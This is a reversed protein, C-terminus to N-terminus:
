RHRAVYAQNQYVADCITSLLCNLTIIKLLTRVVLCLLYVQARRIYSIPEKAHDPSALRHPPTQYSQVRHYVANCLQKFWPSTALLRTVVDKSDSGKSTCKMVEVEACKRLHYGIMSSQLEAVIDGVMAKLVDDTLGSNTMKTAM